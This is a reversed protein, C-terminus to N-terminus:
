RMIWRNGKFTLKADARFAADGGVGYNMELTKRLFVKKARGNKDKATPHEIATTENSVGAIFFKINKAKAEFDPWIIAIDKANDDGQLIRNGSKELSELFPHARQHRLKIQEFVRDPTKKGAPLVQFTDTMLEASPYFEVDRGTKNNLRIIIYWFRELKDGAGAGRSAPDAQVMIQRPHEFTVDVTWDGAGQVIAPEPASYCVGAIIGFIVFTGYFFSKMVIGKLFFM